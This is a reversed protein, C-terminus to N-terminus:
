EAAIILPPSQVMNSFHGSRDRIRLSFVASEEAATPDQLITRSLVVTLVGTIAIPSEDPALPPVHFQETLPFREDTLYVVASDADEFGIDGDGDTYEVLFVISDQLAIVSLPRVEILRISPEPPLIPNAQDRCSVLWGALISILAMAYGRGKVFSKM